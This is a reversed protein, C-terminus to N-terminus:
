PAYSYVAVWDLDLHGDSSGGGNVETQLQWREEQSWVQNTSQGVQKGDIYYIRKGPMWDQTYTHWDTFKAGGGSIEDQSGGGYHAFGGVSSTLHGEPFDSEASSGNGDGSPWLLWAAYYDSLGSDVKFRATYRGYTQYQSSGTGQPSPNAGAPHGNVPHLHFDLVGDHVSLVQAPEYGSTGGTYTSSWGDPYEQWKGGHDGTYVVKQSDSTGWSGLPADKTFDDVFTQKWGPLDGIPVAEGSPPTGGGPPPTPTPPTTGAAGFGVYKGGSAKNTTDTKSAANGAIVGSEAEKAATSTAAHSAVTVIIGVIAFGLVVVIAPAFPLIRKLNKKALLPKMRLM